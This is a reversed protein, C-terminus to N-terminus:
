APSAQMEMLSVGYIYRIAHVPKSRRGLCVDMDAEVFIQFATLTEFHWRGGLINAYRSM